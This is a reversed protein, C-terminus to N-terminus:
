NARGGPKLEFVPVRLDCRVAKEPGCTAHGQAVSLIELNEPKVYRSRVVAGPLCEGKAEVQLEVLGVSWGSCDAKENRDCVADGEGLAHFSISGRTLRRPGGGSLRISSPEGALPQGVSRTGFTRRLRECQGLHDLSVFRHLAHGPDFSARRRVVWVCALLDIQGPVRRLKTFQSTRMM